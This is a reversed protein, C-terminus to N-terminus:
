EVIKLQYGNKIRNIVSKRTESSIRPDALDLQDAEFLRILRKPSIDQAINLSLRPGERLMNLMFKSKDKSFGLKMVKRIKEELTLGSNNIDLIQKMLFSKANSALGNKSDRLIVHNYLDLAKKYKHQYYYYHALKLIDDKDLVNENPFSTIEDELNFSNIQSQIEPTIRIKQTLDMDPTIIKDLIFSSKKMYNEIEKFREDLNDLKVNMTKLPELKKNLENGTSILIDKVHILMEEKAMNHKISKLEYSIQQYHQAGLRDIKQLYEYVEKAAEVKDDGFQEYIDQVIDNIPPPLLSSADKIIENLIPHKKQFKKFEEVSKIESESLKKEFKKLGDKFDKWSPWKMCRGLM